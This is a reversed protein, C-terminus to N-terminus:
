QCAKHPRISSKGNEPFAVVKMILVRRVGKKMYGGSRARIGPRRKPLLFFLFSVFDRSRRDSEIQLFFVSFRLVLRWVDLTDCVHDVVVHGTVDLVVDVSDSTGSSGAGGTSSHREEGIGVGFQSSIQAFDHSFGVLLDRRLQLSKVSSGVTRVNTISTTTATTASAPATTSTSSASTTSVTTALSTGVVLRQTVAAAELAIARIPIYLLKNHGPLYYLAIVVCPLLPGHFQHLHPLINQSMLQSSTIPSPAFSPNQCAIDSTLRLVSLKM